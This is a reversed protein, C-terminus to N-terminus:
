DVRSCYDDKSRSAPLPSPNGYLLVAKRLAGHALAALAAGQLVVLLLGFYDLYACLVACLVYLAAERVPLERRYRLGVMVGWWFYSTLISLLILMSYARAEQSYYIPGWLVTLLLAAVLGERESYLRKGLFYIALICLWGAFASPFRLAWQSDGFIWQAFRLILVYLPPHIGGWVVQIVQSLTERNSFDWSALEEGWLSQFGLGYFRLAAGLLMIALLTLLAWREGLLSLIGPPKGRQLDRDQKKVSTKPGQVTRVVGGRLAAPPPRKPINFLNEPYM